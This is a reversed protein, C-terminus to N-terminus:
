LKKLIEANAEDIVSTDLSALYIQTTKEDSHGMSECIVSIPVNNTKAASGWSHRSVYTTLPRSCGALEGIEKLRANVLHLANKYERYERGPTKIIPFLYDSSSAGYRGIIEAMCPEIKICLLRHTKMRRYIIYGSSIDSKRLYAMDVFSMGRTYFSFLFLDRALSLSTEPPLHLSRVRRIDDMSIARKVTKDVGTYVRRFPHTDATLGEDVADNYASRLTRMYFSTSNRCLGRLKLYSEYREVMRRDISAFPLDEGQRFKMFSRLTSLMAEAGRMRGLQKLRDAERQMYGFV